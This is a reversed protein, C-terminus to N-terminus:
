DKEVEEEEEFREIEGELLDFDIEYSDELYYPDDGLPMAAIIDSDALKKRMDAISEFTMEVRSMVTYIVPVEVILQGAENKQIKSM